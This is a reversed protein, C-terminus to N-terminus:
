ESEKIEKWGDKYAKPDWVCNDKICEYHKGEFTIKDGIHYADYAGTPQVYEPYEDEAPQEEPPTIVGGLKEVVEKIASMGQANANVTVQLEKIKEALNDIQTQFDAYSNVPNANKRAEEELEEKQEKTLSDQVYFEDIKNLIDVLEYNRNNLVNKFIEYM